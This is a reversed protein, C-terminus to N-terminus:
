FRLKYSQKDLYIIYSGRPMNEVYEGAPLSLVKYLRGGFTVIYAKVTKPTRIHLHGEVAWVELSTSEAQEVGTPNEPDPDPDPKPTPDPDPDPDPLPNSKLDVNAFTRLSTKVEGVQNTITCRYRGTESSSVSLQSTIVQADRLSTSEDIRIDPDAAQEWVGDLLREWLFTLHYGERPYAEATLTVSNGATVQQDKLPTVSLAATSGAVETVLGTEDVFVGMNEVTRYTLKAPSDNEDRLILTGNNEIKDLQVEGDLELIVNSVEAIVTAAVGDDPHKVTVDRLVVVTTDNGTKGVIELHELVVPGDAGIVTDKENVAITDVPAANQEFYAHFVTSRELMLSFVHSDPFSVPADLLLEIEEAEATAERTTLRKLSWGEDPTATLTVVSAHPLDVAAMTDVEMVQESGNIFINSEGKFVGKGSSELTIFHPVTPDEPIGKTQAWVPMADILLFSLLSMLGILKNYIKM